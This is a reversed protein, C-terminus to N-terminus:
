RKQRRLAAPDVVCCGSKAACCDRREFRRMVRIATEVTTGAAPSRAARSALRAGHTAELLAGAASNILFPACADHAEHLRSSVVRLIEIGLNPQEALLRLLTSRPLCWAAGGTVAEASAPYTERDLASIAGFIQGPGLTELTTV